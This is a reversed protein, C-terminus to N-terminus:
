HRVELSKTIKSNGFDLVVYYFGNPYNSVELKYIPSNVKAEFIPTGDATLVQITNMPWTKIETYENAPNPVLKTNRELRDLWQKQYAESVDFFSTQYFPGFERKWFWEKHEGDAKINVSSNYFLAGKKNLLSDMRIIDSVMHESENSGAVYYVNIRSDLYSNKAFEFLSDSFWLAPSFAGVKGFINPYALAGFLSILGGMSSGAIGTHMQDTHTRYASDIYPKLTKVIFQIYAKGEGGGYEKNVFPSYENIRNEGGNEIGVVICGLDGTKELKAL